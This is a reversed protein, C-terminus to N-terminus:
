QKWLSSVNVSHAVQDTPWESKALDASKLQISSYFKNQYKICFKANANTKWRVNCYAISIFSSIQQFTFM